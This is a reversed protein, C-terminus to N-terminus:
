GKDARQPLYVYRPVIYDRYHHPNGDKGAEAAKVINYMERASVYHLAYRQGDNYASELYSYMDDALQGLLVKRDEERAGHTHIKVFQWNPRGPVRVRKSVWYDIRQASPVDAISINSQELSPRFSHTRSRWRLGLIGQIFLLGKAPTKGAHAPTASADYGKPQDKRSNGYFFTNALRPQSENSVPFTFDAYCGTELLITVEDNVGCHAGGKRSNALAWDGHIFGYTKSGDPLCFVGCRSFDELCDCIKKRLSTEDDPWPEQRDHHLHMEVEGFGLSCLGVLKELHGFNDYHPPFFFTHQPPVGDADRHRSALPPYEKTWADVRASQKDPNANRNGPEFHDVFAFMIHTVGSARPGKFLRVTHLMDSWFWYTLGKREAGFWLLALVVACSIMIFMIEM